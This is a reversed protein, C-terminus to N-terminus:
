SLPKLSGPPPAIFTVRSYFFNPLGGFFRHIDCPLVSQSTGYDPPCTRKEFYVVLFRQLGDKHHRNKLNSHYNSQCKITALTCLDPQIHQPCQGHSTLTVFKKLTAYIHAKASAFQSPGMLFLNLYICFDYEKAECSVNIGLNQLRSQSKLHYLTCEAGATDCTVM